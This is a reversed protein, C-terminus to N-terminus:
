IPSTEFARALFNPSAGDRTEEFSDIKETAVKKRLSVRFCQFRFGFYKSFKGSFENKLKKSKSRIPSLSSNSNVSFFLLSKIQIKNLYDM